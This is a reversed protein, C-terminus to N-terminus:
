IFAIISAFDKGILRGSAAIGHPDSKVIVVSRATPTSIANAEQPALRFIPLAYGNREWLEFGM